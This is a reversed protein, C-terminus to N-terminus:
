TKNIFMLQIWKFYNSLLTYHSAKMCETREYTKRSFSTCFDGVSKGLENVYKEEGPNLHLCVTHMITISLSPDVVFSLIQEMKERLHVRLSHSKFM